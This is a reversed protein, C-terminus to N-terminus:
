VNQVEELKCVVKARQVVTQKEGKYEEHCKVTAKLHVHDGERIKRFDTRGELEEEWGLVTKTKCVIKHGADDRFIYVLMTDSECEPAPVKFSLLKELTVMFDLRESKIGLEQLRAAQNDLAQQRQAIKAARDDIIKCVAEYQGATLKGFKNLLVAAMSELFNQPGKKPDPLHGGLFQAVEEARQYTRTFTKFANRKINRAIADHYASESWMAEGM